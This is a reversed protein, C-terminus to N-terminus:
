KEEESEPADENAPTEPQITLLVRQVALHDIRQVELRINGIDVIDGIHPIRGLHTMILGGITYTNDEHLEIDHLQELEDLIVDGRVLLTTADVKEIPPVEQDFEDQIEGVVEEMVDEMTVLGSVAGFEDIVMAMHKRTEKLRVFVKETSLSEPVFLTPQKLEDLNIPENPNQSLFRAFDKIHLIGVINDMDEDYIPFRTKQTEAILHMLTEQGIDMPIFTIRPRPTMIQGVVRERLDFINEIFVEENHELLQGGVSEEILHELEDATFLKESEDVPPIGMLRVIGNGAANLLLVFPKFLNEMLLMPRDLRLVTSESAQLALSKPIMEGIVVHLYTLMAVSLATAVTHAAPEALNGLDHLPGVLWEAVQHEGYMGLGLSVFTIGVQATTIYRNQLNADNLIKLVHAALASGNDALQAMRTRPAAIIAFEAAVFLGNLLILVTIILIPILFEM